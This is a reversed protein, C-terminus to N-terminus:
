FVGDHLVFDPFCSNNADHEDPAETHEVHPVVHAFAHHLDIGAYCRYNKQLKVRAMM